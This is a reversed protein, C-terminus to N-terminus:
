ARAAEEPEIQIEPPGYSRGTLRLGKELAEIVDNDYLPTEDERLTSFAKPQSFAMRYGRTSTMADFADAVALVKQELTPRTTHSHGTQGFDEHSLRPHAGSCIQVMPKLFDVESLLDDVKHSARRLARYEDDTLRGQKEMIEVPVALKGMDHIIAAWRMRELQTGTFALQEGILGCFYAVRETHGRTYLDRAELALIFGRLTSEHAERLQAYSTFVLHGVVFVILVLPVISIGSVLLVVGLFGGLFGMAMQSTFLVGMGSWPVFGSSGYVLRAGLRIAFLNVVTYVLAAVAAALAIQGIVDWAFDFTDREESYYRTRVPMLAELVAAAAVASLVLQGFNFAPLFIHREKLDELGFPSTAAVLGLALLSWSGGGVFVVGATIAVMPSASAYMRDNVEVSQFSLVFYAIAFLTWNGIPFTDVLSSWTRPADGEVLFAVALALLGVVFYVTGILIRRRRDRM